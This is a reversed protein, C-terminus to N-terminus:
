RLGSRRPKMGRFGQDDNGQRGANNQMVYTLGAIQNNMNVMSEGLIHVLDYMPDGGGGKGKRPPPPGKTSQYGPGKGGDGGNGGNGGNGGPGKGFGPPRACYPGTREAANYPIQGDGSAPPSAGGAPASAWPRMMGPPSGGYAQPTPLYSLAQLNLPGPSLMNTNAGYPVGGVPNPCGTPQYTQATATM